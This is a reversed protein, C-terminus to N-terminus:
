TALGDKGCSFAIAVFLYNKIERRKKIKTREGFM